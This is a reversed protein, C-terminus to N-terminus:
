VCLSYLLHLKSLDIWGPSYETDIQCNRTNQQEQTFHETYTQTPGNLRYLQELKYLQTVWNRTIFKEMHLRNTRNRQIVKVLVSLLNFEIVDLFEASKIRGCVYM